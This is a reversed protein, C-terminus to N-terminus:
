VETCGPSPLLSYPSCVDQARIGGGTRRGTSGNNLGLRFSISLAALQHPGRLAMEQSVASILTWLLRFSCVPSVWGLLRSSFVSGFENVKTKAAQKDLFIYMCRWGWGWGVKVALVM